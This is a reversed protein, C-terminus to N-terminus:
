HNGGRINPAYVVLCENELVQEADDTKVGNLMVEGSKISLDKLGLLQGLTTGEDVEVREESEGMQFFRISIRQALLEEAGEIVAEAGADTDSM